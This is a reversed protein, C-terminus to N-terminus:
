LFERISVEDQSSWLTSRLGYGQLVVAAKGGFYETLAVLEGISVREGRRLAGLCVCDM